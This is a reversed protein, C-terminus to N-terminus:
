VARNDILRTRGLFAAAIVRAPGDVREVPVLTRADCVALYQVRFGAAELAA